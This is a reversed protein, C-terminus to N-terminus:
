LDDDGIGEFVKNTTMAANSSPATAPKPSQGKGQKCSRLFDDDDDEDDDDGDDDDDDTRVLRTM